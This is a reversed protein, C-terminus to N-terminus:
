TMIQEFMGRIDEIDKRKKKKDM